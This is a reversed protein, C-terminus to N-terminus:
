RTPEKVTGVIEERHSIAKAAVGPMTLLGTPDEEPALERERVYQVKWLSGDRWFRQVKEGEGANYDALMRAHLYTLPENDDSM